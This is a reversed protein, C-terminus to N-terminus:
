ESPVFPVCGSDLFLDHKFLCLLCYISLVKSQKHCNSPRAINVDKAFMLEGRVLELTGLGLIWCKFGRNNKWCSLASECLPRSTLFSRLVVKLFIAQYFHVLQTAVLIELNPGYPNRRTPSSLSGLQYRCAM